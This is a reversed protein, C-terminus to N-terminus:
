VLYKDMKKEFDEFTTYYEANWGFVKAGDVNEQTDDWFLVEENKVGALGEMVKAYFERNPKRYGLHASAFVKDFVKEFGMEKLMYAFRYITQNTALCCIVGKQRLEQIYDVLKSNITHESEHWYDIFDDVSKEWGWKSLYSPLVEKLEAKGLICEKFIGNFFPLTTERSIGYDKELHFSFMLGNILVGDADFIVAKIM